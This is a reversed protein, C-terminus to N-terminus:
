PQYGFKSLKVACDLGQFGREHLAQRVEEVVEDCGTKNSISEWFEDSGESITVTIEYTKRLVIMM